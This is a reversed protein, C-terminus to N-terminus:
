TWNGTSFLKRRASLQMKMAIRSKMEQKCRADNTIM